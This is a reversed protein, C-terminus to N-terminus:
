RAAQLPAATSESAEDRGPPHHLLCAQRSEPLFRDGRPAPQQRRVYEELLAFQKFFDHEATGMPSKFFCALHALVGVEGQRQGYLALRALDIVLPAALLSDCGQWTFQMMMKVGLFGQFHIHDWATKWDDLSEIYEISVHTQPKYGVISSIVQDKTQVKSAKNAPDDLVLGDRNGFINHGVWSLIRFNRHAFLPALVTKLLTEGTKGDKGGYVAKRQRALEELAPCSCGLSPTFNIYPLGLDLAAGAYLASPPLLPRSHPQDLAALLRDLGQHEAGLAFPPETSAVNVVVLQSLRHQEWFVRLDAQIRDCVARPSEDRHAEPRDALRVITPNANAVTGVRVNETWEDLDPLCADILDPDFVNSRRRLELVGQRFSSQRVEHGGLVFDAPQDLGLGDFLPLATVLSTGDSRGRKLASLGLAVTSGVGGFAGILWLGVRRESMAIGERHLEALSRGAVQRARELL